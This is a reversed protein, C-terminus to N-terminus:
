FDHNQWKSHSKLYTKNGRQIDGKQNNLIFVYSLQYICLIFVYSLYMFVYSIIHYM